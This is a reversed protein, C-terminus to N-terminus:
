NSKTHTTTLLQKLDRYVDDPQATVAYSLVLFGDPNAIFFRMQRSHDLLAQEEILPLHDVDVGHRHLIEMLREPLSNSRDGILLMQNVEYFHRGLALRIRALQEVPRVCGERCDNPSWLLLHWKNSANRLSPILLPPDVFQGKNTTHRSLWEPHKFFYLAAFGPALFLVGLLCLIVTNRSISNM